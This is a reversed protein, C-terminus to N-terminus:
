VGRPPPPPPTLARCFIDSGREPEAGIQQFENSLLVKKSVENDQKTKACLQSVNLKREAYNVSMCILKSGLGLGQYNYDISYSIKAQVGQCEFRVVGIPRKGLYLILVKIDPNKLVSYFWNHHEEPTIVHTTFSQRRVKEENRWSLLLQEDDACAEILFLKCSWDCSGQILKSGFGDISM